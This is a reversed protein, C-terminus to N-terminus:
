MLYPFSLAVVYHLYESSLEKDNCSAAHVLLLDDVSMGSVTTPPSLSALDLPLPRLSDTIKNLKRNLEYFAVVVSFCLAAVLGDDM